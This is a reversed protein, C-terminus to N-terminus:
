FNHYMSTGQGFPKKLVLLVKHAKFLTELWIIAEDELPIGWDTTYVIGSQLPTWEGEAKRMVQSLAEHYKQMELPLMVIKAAVRLFRTPFMSLYEVGYKAHFVHQPYPKSDHLIGVRLTERAEYFEAKFEKMKPLIKSAIKEHESSKNSSQLYFGQEIHRFYSVIRAVNTSVQSYTPHLYVLGKVFQTTVYFTCRESRFPGLAPIMNWGPALEETLERTLADFPVEQRPDFKGGPLTYEKGGELVVGVYGAVLSVLAVGEFDDPQKEPECVEGITCIASGSSTTVYEFTKRDVGFRPDHYYWARFAQHGLQEAYIVNQVFDHQYIEFSEKVNQVIAHGYRYKPEPLARVTAQLMLKDLPRKEPQKMPRPRIIELQKFQSALKVEYIGDPVGFHQHIGDVQGGEIEVEVTNAYKVRYEIPAMQNKSMLVM